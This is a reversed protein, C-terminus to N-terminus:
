AVTYQIRIVDLAVDGIGGWGCGVNTYGIAHTGHSPAGGSGNCAGSANALSTTKHYTNILIELTVTKGVLSKVSANMLYGTLTRIIPVLIYDISKPVYMLECDVEALRAGTGTVKGTFMDMQQKPVALGDSVRQM